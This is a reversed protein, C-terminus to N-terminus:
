TYIISFSAGLQSIITIIDRIWYLDTISNMLVKYNDEEKHAVEYSHDSYNYGM